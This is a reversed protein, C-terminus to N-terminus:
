TQLCSGLLPLLIKIYAAVCDTKDFYLINSCFDGLSMVSSLAGPLVVLFPLSFLSSFVVLFTGHM